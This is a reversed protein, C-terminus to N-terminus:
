SQWFMQRKYVDLHTYSVPAGCLHYMASILNFSVPPERDEGGSVGGAFPLNDAQCRRRMADCFRIVEEAIAPTSYTPAILHTYSVPM